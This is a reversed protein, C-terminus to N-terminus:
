PAEVRRPNLYPLDDLVGTVLAVELQRTAEADPTEAWRYSLNDAIYRRVDDDLRRNRAVVESVDSPRRRITISGCCTGIHTTVSSGPITSRSRATIATSTPSRFSSILTQGSPVMTDLEPLVPDSRDMEAFAQYLLTRMQDGRLPPTLKLPRALSPLVFAGFRVSAPLWSPGRLLRKIDGEDLWLDWLADQPRNTAIAKALCIGNIGGASTGSVIDVVGRVRPAIPQGNGPADGFRLQALLDWYAGASDNEAFPNSAEDQEFAASATVLKQIRKPSAM